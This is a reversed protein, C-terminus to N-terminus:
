NRYFVKWERCKEKFSTSGDREASLYLNGGKLGISFGRGRKILVLDDHSMPDETLFIENSNLCFLGESGKVKLRSNLTDVTVVKAQDDLVMNNPDAHFFSHSEYSYYLVTNHHTLCASNFDNKNLINVSPFFNILGVGAEKLCSFRDSIEAYSFSEISRLASTKKSFSNAFIDSGAHVTRIYMPKIPNIVTPYKDDVKTHNGLGYVSIDKLGSGKEYVQIFSLGMAIKPSKRETFVSYGGDEYIGEYGNSFSVAHGRYLPDIYKYIESEFDDALADDDDLRITAYCIDQDFSDLKKTLHSQMKGIVGGSSSLPIVELNKMEESLGILKKMNEEPLEESTFLLITTKDPSMNKLSPVTVNFFLQEHLTMREESFLEQKYEEFGNDRGIVWANNNKSLVSYRIMVFAHQKM